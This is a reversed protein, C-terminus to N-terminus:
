KELTISGARDVEKVTMYSVWTEIAFRGGTLAPGRVRILNSYFTDGPRVPKDIMRDLPFALRLVWKDGSTDSVAKLGFGREAYEEDLVGQRWNVEGYSIGRIMATPGVLYQRFPQARQRAFMVEWDDYCAIHPSVNLKKPDVHDILEMYLFRGDHCVKGEMKFTIPTDSGRDYFTDGLSGAEAWAVKNPDGAAAPVRSATVAPIPANMRTTFTEHGTKMYQWVGQDWLAVRQRHEPTEAAEHAREMTEALQKMVEATGLHKWAIRVNQHGAYPKGGRKPYLDANCYRKEVTTYFERIADAAPGYFAFYDDLLGDVNLAPDDMLRYSLYNEVEGNLGCHFIGSIQYEKFTKFQRDYAHAFFGPFCYFKGNNAIELPFTNYLWLSMPVGENEHWHKLLAMQRDLGPSYPMRNHSVCFYVIVNAELKVGTPLGEHTMYALTTLKKDPHTKKIERAVRNVFRFWYTSHQEARPRDPEFQPTCKACKCFSSNDMPELAFYNQGWTYGPVGIMSMRKKFGGHDFYDRIDQVLQKIFDENSFCMQPPKDGQYGQAFFEPRYAVFNKHGKLWYQEYFHYFSHNCPALDGGAKMRHMFLRNQARVGSVRARLDKHQAYLRAYAMEMYKEGEPTGQRRLGGGWQIREALHSSASGGRYWMFPKRRVSHGSVVLTPKRPAHTGLDTPNLCRVGCYDRLFDHVAYMTGQEDYLSPWTRTANPDALCDYVLEGKDAKDKGMLVLSDPAIFRVLYEQSAFDPSKLGLKRTLESEGVLIRADEVPQDDTVLPLEAGTVLQVFHRLEAAAFRAAKEADKAVVVTAAPEGNRTLEFPHDAALPNTLALMLTFCGVYTGPEGWRSRAIM